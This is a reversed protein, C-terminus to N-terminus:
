FTRKTKRYWNEVNAFRDSPTTVNTVATGQLKPSLAYLYKPQYLMIAPLEENFASVLLTGADIAKQPDASTRAIEIATDVKRNVFGCLNLGPYTTQSSHWFPYLDPYAGYREGALLVDYSHDKIIDNQLTGQDVPIVSVRAGIATWEKQLENAAALLETSDLTTISFALEAGSKTRVTAGPALTWGSTELLAAAAATDAAPVLITADFGPMGSFLPSVIPIASNGTSVAAIASRDTALALAQRVTDDALIPSSQQFFAATFQSLQPTGLAIVGDRALGQADQATLVSAGEVNKNRVADTLELLDGYFKMTIDNLYVTGRYFNPNRAVTYSRLSGKSDKVLKSFMFPGSGVPKINLQALTANQPAVDVWLHAPLIGVTLVALFPTFPEDLTFIVTHVDPADVTVGSFSAALPSHYEPNQIADVTFLIDASTVLEGDHWEANDRLTFTYVKQDESITVTSALDPVLGSIGDYRMLGSFMLRTLDANVDSGTAYLPNLYQPTGIAGEIYSGGVAPTLTQHSLVTRAAITASSFICIALAIRAIRQEKTNLFRPLEKWQHWTPFRNGRLHVVQRLALTNASPRRKKEM